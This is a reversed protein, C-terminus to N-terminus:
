ITIIAIIFIIIVVFIIIIIIFVMPLIISFKIEGVGEITNVPELHKVVHVASNRLQIGKTM